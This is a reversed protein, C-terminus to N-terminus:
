VERQGSYSTWFRPAIADIGDIVINTIMMDNLGEFGSDVNCMMWGIDNMQPAGTSGDLLLVVTNVGASLTQNVSALTSYALDTVSLFINRAEPSTITLTIHAPRLGIEWGTPPPTPYVLQTSDDRTPYLTNGRGPCTSFGGRYMNAPVELGAPWPAPWGSEPITCPM